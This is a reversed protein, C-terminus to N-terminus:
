AINDRITKALANAQTADLDKAKQLAEAGHTAQRINMMAERLPADTEWPKGANLKLAPEAAQEHHHHEAADAANVPSSVSSALLAMSTSMLLPALAM